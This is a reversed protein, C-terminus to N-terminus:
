AALEQRMSGKCLSNRELTQHTSHHRRSESTKSAAWSTRSFSLDGLQQEIDHGERARTQCGFLLDQLVDSRQDRPALRSLFGVQPLVCIPRHSHIPLLIFQLHHTSTCFHFCCSINILLLFVTLKFCAARGCQNTSSLFLISSHQQARRHSESTWAGPTPPLPTCPSRGRPVTDLPPLQPLSPFPIAKGPKSWKLYRQM